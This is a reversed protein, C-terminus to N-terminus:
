KYKYIEYRMLVIPETNDASVTKGRYKPNTADTVFTYRTEVNGERFHISCVDKSVKNYLYSNPRDKEFADKIEPVLNAPVKLVLSTNQVKKTQPDRRESYSVDANPDNELKKTIAALNSQAVASLSAALLAVVILLQRTM